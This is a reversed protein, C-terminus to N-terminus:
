SGTQQNHSQCSGLLLSQELEWYWTLLLPGQAPPTAAQWSSGQSGGESSGQSAWQSWFDKRGATLLQQASRTFIHHFHAPIRCLQPSCLQSLLFPLPESTVMIFVLLFGQPLQLTGLLPPQSVPRTQWMSSVSSLGRPDTTSGLTGHPCPQLLVALSWMGAANRCAPSHGTCALSHGSDKCIGKCGQLRHSDSCLFCLHLSMVFATVPLLEFNFKSM